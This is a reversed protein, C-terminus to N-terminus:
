PITFWIPVTYRTGSLVEKVEHAYHMNGPFMVLDGKKPKITINHTAFSLEGGEYDDNLYVLTPLHNDTVYGLDDVHLSLSSGKDWRAMNLRDTDKKVINDYGYAKKVEALVREFLNYKDRIGQYNHIWSTPNGSDDKQSVFSVLNSEDGRSLVYEIEEESLFNPIVKINDSSNGIKEFFEIYSPAREIESPHHGVPQNNVIYPM